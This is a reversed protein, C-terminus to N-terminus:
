WCLCSGTANRAPLLLVILRVNPHPSSVVTCVGPSADAFFYQVLHRHGSSERNPQVPHPTVAPFIRLPDFTTRVRSLEHGSMAHVLVGDIHNPM